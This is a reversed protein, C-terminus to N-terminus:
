TPLLISLIEYKKSNLLQLTFETLITYICTRTYSKQKIEM